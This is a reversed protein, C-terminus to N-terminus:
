AVGSLQTWRRIDTGCLAPTSPFWFLKIWQLDRGETAYACRLGEPSRSSGYTFMGSFWCQSVQQSTPGPVGTKPVSATVLLSCSCYCSMTEKWGGSNESWGFSSSFMHLLSPLLLSLAPGYGEPWHGPPGPPTRPLPAMLQVRLHINMRSLITISWLSWLILSFIM